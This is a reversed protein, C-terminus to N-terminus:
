AEKSRHHGRGGITKLWPGLRLPVLLDLVASAKVWAPPM